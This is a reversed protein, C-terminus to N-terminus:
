YKYGVGIFTNVARNYDESFKLSVGATYIMGSDQELELNYAVKGSTKPLETGEIDFKSGNKDKGIVHGKLDKSTDGLTNVVGAYFVNSLKAKPMYVSKVIDVGVELDVTKSKAEDVGISLQEPDYGEDIKDQDVYYYSLRTKPEISWNQTGEYVYKAELFANFSNINYKDNTKFTDYGNSIKRDTDADTYQYGLGGTFRFNDVETKAFTGLYLSNAKTKNSGRFNVNQNSGGIIGGISTKDSIGYEFTAM